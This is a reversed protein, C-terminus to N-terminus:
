SNFTQHIIRIQDQLVALSHTTLDIIDEADQVQQRLSALEQDGANQALELLRNAEAQANEIDAVMGRAQGAGQILNKLRDLDTLHTQLHEDHTQFTHDTRDVYEMYTRIIRGLDEEIFQELSTIEVKLRRNLNRLMQIALRLSAIEADKNTLQQADHQTLKDVLKTYQTNACQANSSPYLRLVTFHPDGECNKPPKTNNNGPSLDHHFLQIYREIQKVREPSGQKWKLIKGSSMYQSVDIAPAATHSGNIFAVIVTM